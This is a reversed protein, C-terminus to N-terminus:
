GTQFFSQRFRWGSPLTLLKVLFFHVEESLCLCSLSYQTLNYFIFATWRWRYRDFIVYHLHLFEHVKDCILSIGLFGGLLLQPFLTVKLRPCYLITLGTSPSFAVSLFLCSFCRLDAALPLVLPGPPPLLISWAADIFLSFAAFAAHATIGSDCLWPWKHRCFARRM